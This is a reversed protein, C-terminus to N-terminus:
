LVITNFSKPKLIYNKGEITVTKEFNFGNMIVAVRSGDPNRFIASNSTHEGKTGLMVAGRKVFHAFHKLLYYEPNHICKGDETVSFLSNQRWGWTSVGNADLAMNWYVTARAGHRLYHRINEYTYMAYTWTNNGDGCECESNITDLEPFDESAPLIGMKGAWQYSAGKVNAKLKENQMAYYLFNNHRDLLTEPTNLTGFWIDTMGGIEDILYDSIFKTLSEGTWVCSPFKQDAVVENQVHIQKIKIGEKAYEELYKRMYLAYAKLNEETQIIRGFNYVKPNKMWTPPSWPSSFFEINESYKMAKKIAPILYKRDREISFNKMEFDGETENYSYWSEAFDNAGMPLRCFSFGLGDESFLDKYIEEASQEDMRNLARVGLESICCGWGFLPKGIPEGIILETGKKDSFSNNQDWKSEPTSSFWTM